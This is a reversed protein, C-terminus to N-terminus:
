RFMWYSQPRAAMSVSASLASTRFHMGPLLNMHMLPHGWGGLAKDALALTCTLVFCSSIRAADYGRGHLFLHMGAEYFTVTALLPYRRWMLEYDLAAGSPARSTAITHLAAGNLLLSPLLSLVAETQTGASAAIITTATLAGLHILVMDADMAARVLWPRKTVAAFKLQAGVLTLHFFISVVNHVCCVLLWLLPPRPSTLFLYVPLPLMLLANAAEQRWGYTTDAVPDKSLSAPAITAAALRPSKRRTTGSPPPSKARRSPSRRAM